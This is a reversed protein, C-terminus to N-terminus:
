SLLQALAPFIPTFVTVHNSANQIFNKYHQTFSPTGVTSQMAQIDKSLKETESSKAISELLTKLQKFVESSDSRFNTSNDTSHVYLRETNVVGISVGPHSKEPEMVHEGKDARYLQTKKLIDLTSRVAELLSLQDEFVEIMQRVSWPSGHELNESIGKVREVWIRQEDVDNVWTREFSDIYSSFTPYSQAYNFERLRSRMFGAITRGNAYLNEFEFRAPNELLYVKSFDERNKLHVWRSEEFEDFAKAIELLRYLYTEVDRFDKRIEM